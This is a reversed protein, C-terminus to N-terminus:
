QGTLAPRISVDGALVRELGQPTEILLAGDADIDIAVGTFSRDVGRVDVQQGLTISQSRWDALV